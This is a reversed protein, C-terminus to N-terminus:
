MQAVVLQSYKSEFNSEKRFTKMHCQRCLTIGNKVEFIKSIDSRIPIIHHPELVGGAVDCEQCTYKDRSFVEMRWNKWEITSRLRHKEMIETRDKKWQYNNEGVCLGKHHISIKRKTEETHKKGLWYKINNESLKKKHEKSFKKGTQCISFKKKLEESYKIGKNWVPPMVGKLGKNWAIQGKHSDSLRKRQEESLKHGLHSTNGLASQRMKQKSEESFKFGKKPM